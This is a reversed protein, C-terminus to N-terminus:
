QDASEYRVIEKRGYYVADLMAKMIERSVPVPNVKTAGLMAHDLLLEFNEKYSAESIGAELFSVPIGLERDLSEVSDAISDAKCVASLEQLKERVVPDQANFKLVYPLIIANTLGHPMDFVAGFSHAMGHVMGLGVNAFAIGAMAQYYHIKERSEADGELSSSPLYRIIGSIASNCLARDFIDLRSNMYAELAHTLADMGTEAAIDRPMTSPLLPDLIAIDPRLCDTMIPVKLKRETDTIVCGRTVESGTGSTSPICILGTSRESPVHGSSIEEIVNDFNLQRFEYFLLMAKAADMASGGGAALVLDPKEERMRSVGALVEEISPNMHIGSHLVCVCGSSALYDSIKQIVGSKIMSSGGTVIFAKKYHLQKLFEISGAGTVIAKGSLTIKTIKNM